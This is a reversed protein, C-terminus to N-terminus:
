PNEGIVFPENKMATSVEFGLQGDPFLHRYGPVVFNFTFEANITVVDGPGGADIPDVTVRDVDLDMNHANRNIVDIISNARSMPNGLTDPLVNGTVAFRAAEAVSHQLTLRTYFYRGFEFVGLFVFLVLPFAIAFELLGQGRTSSRFRRLAIRLSVAM